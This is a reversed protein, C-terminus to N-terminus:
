RGLRVFIFAGLAFLPLFIVLTGVIPNDFPDWPPNGVTLFPQLSAGADGGASVIYLGATPLDVKGIPEWGKSNVQSSFLSPVDEVELPEGKKTEAVAFELNDPADASDNESALGSEEFYMYVEGAPLELAQAGPISVKGHEDHSTFPAGGIFYWALALILGTTIPISAFGIRAGLSHGGRKPPATPPPTPQQVQTGGSFEVAPVRGGAATLAALGLAGGIM